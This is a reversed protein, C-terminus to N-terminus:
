YRVTKGRLEAATIAAVYVGKSTEKWGASHGFTTSM